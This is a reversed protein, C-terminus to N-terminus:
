GHRDDIIEGQRDDVVVLAVINGSRNGEVIGM